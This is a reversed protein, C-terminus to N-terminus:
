RKKIIVKVNQGVHYHDGILDWDNEDKIVWHYVLAGKGIIDYTVHIEEESIVTNNDIMTQWYVVTGKIFNDDIVIISGSPMKDRIADFELWGHLMSPVPNKMNLDYSDLHVFNVYGDFSELFKVSDSCYYEINKFDPFLESYRNKSFELVTSDNDVTIFKGNNLQCLKNLFTGFMGDNYNHSAGTEICHFEDFPFDSLCNVVSNVQNIRKGNINKYFDISDGFIM